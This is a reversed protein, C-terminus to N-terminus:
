AETVSLETASGGTLPLASIGTLSSLITDGGTALLQGAEHNHNAIDM